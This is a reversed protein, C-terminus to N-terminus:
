HNFLYQYYTSYGHYILSPAVQAKKGNESLNLVHQKALVHVAGYADLKCCNGAIYVQM